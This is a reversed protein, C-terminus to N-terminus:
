DGAWAGAASGSEHKNAFDDEVQRNPVIRLRDSGGIHGARDNCNTEDDENAINKAGLREGTIWRILLTLRDAGFNM